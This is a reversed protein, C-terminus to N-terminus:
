SNGGNRADSDPAVQKEKPAVHDGFGRGTATRWLIMLDLKLSRNRVYEADSEALRLPNSMDIGRVQSWGTIGPLLEYVGRAERERILEEQSVLCPRPGVFSMEGRLVNILQPLEDLKSKRLIAGITTVADAGIEHTGAQQTGVKMTRLKLCFFPRRGKGVREQRFLAPGESTLRVLLCLAALVPAMIIFSLGAM